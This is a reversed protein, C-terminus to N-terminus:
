YGPPPGGRVTQDYGARFGHRYEDFAPPPVPPNRFRPHRQVDPALSRAIDRRAADIGDHYGQQAAPSLEAPPPPPTYVVTQTHTCGALAFPIALASIAAIKKLTMQIVENIPIM